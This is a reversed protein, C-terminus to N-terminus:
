DNDKNPEKGALKEIFSWFYAGGFATLALIIGTFGESLNNVVDEPVDIGSAALLGALATIGHRVLSYVQKRDIM